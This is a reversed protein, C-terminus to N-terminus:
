TKKLKRQSSTLKGQKDKGIGHIQTFVTYKIKTKFSKFTQKVQTKKKKKTKVYKNPAMPSPATGSTNLYYTSYYLSGGKYGAIRSICDSM